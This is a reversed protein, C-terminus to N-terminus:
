YLVKYILNLTNDDLKDVSELKLKLDLPVELDFIPKGQTFIVGAISLSIETAVKAELFASNIKGGGTVAIEHIGESELREVLAAPSESTAEFNSDNIDAFKEPNRTLVITKRGPLLKRRMAEFTTSGMVMIGIKKTLDYFHKKDAAGGWELKDNDSKAILGNISEVM